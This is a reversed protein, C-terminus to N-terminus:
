DFKQMTEFLRRLNHLLGNKEELTWDALAEQMMRERTLNIMENISEGYNTLESMRIRSDSSSPYTHVLGATELKDIQRSVSSYNKGMMAALDGVGTPQLHGIGVLVRFAAAELNVGANAIMKRDRDPRNILSVLDILAKFIENEM